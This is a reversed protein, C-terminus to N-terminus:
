LKEDVNLLDPLNVPSTATFPVEGWLLKPLARYVAEGASHANVLTPIVPSEMLLYPSGMSVAIPHHKTTNLMTWLCEAQSGRPRCPYTLEVHVDFVFIVADFKECQKELELLELCNGNNRIVVEDCHAKIGDIFTKYKEELKEPNTLAFWLLVKKTKERDLPLTKEENRILAIGKQAVEDAFARGTVTYVEADPAPREPQVDDFLGERDKMALVHRVADDLRSESIEGRDIARDVLDIYDLDPWLMVDIGANFAQIIRKEYPQIRTFGGMVLADSVIVGQFGLEKRLLDIMIKSSLTGPLPYPSGPDQFPLSIHGVMISDVGAAIVNRYIAGYIAMWRDRSLRNISIGTHQDRHDSGDGPFHKAAASLKEEQMGRIIQVALESVLAPDDGMGRHNNIPNLWNLAVDCEPSYSWTFGASRGARGIWKGYQYAMKPDHTAALALADPLDLTKTGHELDGAVALPLKCFKQCSKLIACPDDGSSWKSIVDLGAFLSGVPYQSFFEGIKAESSKDIKSLSFQMTQGIKERRSMTALMADLQPTSLM